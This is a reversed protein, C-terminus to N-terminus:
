GEDDADDEPAADAGNATSMTADGHPQPGESDGASAVEVPPEYDGASPVSHETVECEAAGPRSAGDGAPAHGIAPVPLGLDNAVQEVERRLDALPVTRIEGDVGRLTVRDRFIDNATVKEEGRATRLIRGEKPFRRRSQVYFEHEYRLSCM